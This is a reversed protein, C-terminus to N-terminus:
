RKEHKGGQKRFYRGRHPKEKVESKITLDDELPEIPHGYLALLRMINPSWINLNVLDSLALPRNDVMLRVKFEVPKEEDAKANKRQPRRRRGDM